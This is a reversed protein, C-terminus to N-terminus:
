GIRRRAFPQGERKPDNTVAIHQNVQVTEYALLAGYFDL